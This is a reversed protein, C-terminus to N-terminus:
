KHYCREPGRCLEDRGLYNMCIEYTHFLLYEKTGDTRLAYAGIEDEPLAYVAIEDPVGGANGEDTWKILIRLKEERDYRTEFDSLTYKRRPLEEPAMGPRVFIENASILATIVDLSYNQLRSVLTFRFRKPSRETVTMIYACLNKAKSIVSLENAM